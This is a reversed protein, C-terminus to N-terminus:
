LGQECCQKLFCCSALLIGLLPFPLLLPRPCPQLWSEPSLGKLPMDWGPQPPSQILQLTQTREPSPLFCVAGHAQPGPRHRKAKLLSSHPQLTFPGPPRPHGSGLQNPRATLSSPPDARRLPLLPLLHPFGLSDRPSKELGGLEFPGQGSAKPAVLTPLLYYANPSRTVPPAVVPPPSEPLPATWPPVGSIQPARPLATPPM